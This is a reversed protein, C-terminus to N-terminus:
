SVIREQRMGDLVARIRHPPLQLKAANLKVAEQPMGYVLCTEESQAITVAGVDRLAKLGEAGDRGMGTLLIGTATSGFYKAAQFFLQDVSPCIEGGVTKRPLLIRRGSTPEESFGFQTDDAAFYVTNPKPRLGATAIQLSLGTLTSLWEILGEVFGKSIHQAVFIPAPFQDMGSLLEVLVTPGGTSAGIVVAGVGQEHLVQADEALQRRPRRTVVRVESMLLIQTRLLDAQEKIDGSYSPKRQVALVGARLFADGGNITNASLAIIPLPSQAMVQEVSSLGGSRPSDIDFLLLDPKKEAIEQLLTQSNPLQSVVQVRSDANLLGVLREREMPCSDVLLLRSM